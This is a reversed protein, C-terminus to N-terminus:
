KPKALRGVARMEEFAEDLHLYYRETTTVSRHGMKKSVLKLNGSNRVALTGWQHRIGHTTAKETIGLKIKLRRLHQGITRRTWPTGRNNLFVTETPAADPRRAKIKQLLLVTDSDIPLVLPKKLKKRGKHHRYTATAKEWDIDQWELGAMDGLRVGELRLFTYAEDFPKNASTVVQAFVADPMCPRPEAEEYTIGEFPNSVIRKTKKAWNFVANLANAKAKRTSSSKWRPNDEIWDTLHHPLLEAPDCDGFLRGDPHKANEFRAFVYRRDALAASGHINNVASHALYRAFLERVTPM